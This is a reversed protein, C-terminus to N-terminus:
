ERSVAPVAAANSMGATSSALTDNIGAPREISLARDTPMVAQLQKSQWAAQIKSWLPSKRGGLIVVAIGALIVPGGILLGAGPPGQLGLWYGYLSSIPPATLLMTSLVLPSVFQLAWNSVTHGLITPVFAMAFAIGFRRIDGMWGFVSNPGLGFLITEEELLLSLMAAGLGAVAFTPMSYLWIPMWARMRGGVLLNAAMCVAAAAAAMDGAVSFPRIKSVADAGADDVPLGPAVDAAPAPSATAADDAWFGDDTQAASSAAAAAAAADAAAAAREQQTIMVLLVMGAFALCAGAIEAWTPPLVVMRRQEISVGAELPQAAPQVRPAAPATVAAAGWTSDAVASTLAAGDGRRSDARGRGGAFAVGGNSWPAADSLSAGLASSTRRRLPRAPTAATEDATASPPVSSASASSAGVSAARKTEQHPVPVGAVALVAGLATKAAIHVSCGDRSRGIAGSPAGAGAPSSQGADAADGIVTVQEAECAGADHPVPIAAHWALDHRMGLVDTSSRARGRQSEAGSGWADGGNGAGPARPGSSSSVPNQAVLAPRRVSMLKSIGEEPQRGLCRMLAVFVGFILLAWVALFVPASSALIMSHAFSTHEVSWSFLSFHVALNLGNTCVIPLARLWRDRLAADAKRVDLVLGPLMILATLCLRWCAKLIPAVGTLFGFLPGGWAMALVAVVILGYYLM